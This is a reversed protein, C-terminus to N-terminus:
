NQGGIALPVLPVYASWVKRAPFHVVQFSRRNVRIANICRLRAPPKTLDNLTRIIAALRPVLGSRRGSLRRRLASHRFGFAVFEDVVCRICAALREGRMLPVVACLMRPLELPNPM